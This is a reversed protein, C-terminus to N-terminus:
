KGLLTRIKGLWGEAIAGSRDVDQALLLKLSESDLGPSLMRLLQVLTAAMKATREKTGAPGTASHREPGDMSLLEKADVPCGAELRRRSEAEFDPDVLFLAAGLQPTVWSGYDIRKWLRSITEPHTGCIIVAVAGVLHPRWNKDDLLRCIDSGPESSTSCCRRVLDVAEAADSAGLGLLSLYSHPSKFVPEFIGFYTNM